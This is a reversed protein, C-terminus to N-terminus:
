ANSVVRAATCARNGTSVTVKLSLHRHIPEQYAKRLHCFRVKASEPSTPIVYHIEVESNTVVVRDILLEVLARRQTFSAEMLGTRVQACFQEISDAIASLEIQRAAIAALEQQQMQLSEQQQRLSARSREFTPLEIVEALYADLLRSQQREVQKLAHQITTQRAQLEQPLWDGSQARALATGLHQPETLMTCLDQWVVEDLHHGPIYRSPCRDERALELANTRGRCMYYHYGQTTARGTMSLQCIGCSVLARLLYDHQQNNRAATRQNAALKAQVQEFCEQSILAPIPIPIWEETPRPVYSKGRGLPRLASKRTHSDVEKVRNAYATGTYAPNCLINRVTPTNWREKGSPTPVRAATLRAAVTYLTAQPELYWAVIQHVIVSTIPDLQLRAPDRPREPDPLYGFPPTSWPVLQGARLKALRGRRMRDAILTREYEAVAGRIQLVLHDHPDHSMPRDTFLVQCGHQELEEILLVQHVYKRALRDPATIVVADLAAQAAQDRLQDLGPRNLKAGSYGDDRYIHHDLLTWPHDAVFTRLRTLQQDITQGASPALDVGARLPRCADSVEQQCDNASPPAWQLLRQYSQDWRRHGDSRPVTTRRITWVQRM